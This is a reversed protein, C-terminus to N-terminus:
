ETADDMDSALVPLTTCTCNPHVPPADDGSSFVEDLGIPGDDENGQCEECSDPSALWEKGGMGAQSYEDLSAQSMARNTETNAIMDAYQPDDLLGALDDAVVDVPDGNAIGDALAQALADLRNDAISSISVGADDLMGALGRGGDDGLLEAETRWNGVDWTVDIGMLDQASAAGTVYGESWTDELVSTAATLADQSVVAQLAAKAHAVESPDPKPAAEKQLTFSYAEVAESLKPILKAFAKRIEAARKKALADRAKDWAAMKQRSRAKPVASVAKQAAATAVKIEGLDLQEGIRNLEGAVAMLPSGFEFPRWKGDRVRARAFAVFKKAEDAATPKGNSSPGSDAPQSGSAPQPGTAPTDGSAPAAGPAPPPPADPGGPQSLLGRIPFVTRGAIIFPEDAEPFSFLSLGAEARRENLTRVGDHQELGRTEAVLKEDEDEELFFKFTLYDPMRVYRIALDNLWNEMWDFMPRLARRAGTTEVNDTFGKGGLGGGSPMFGIEIPQISYCLCALKIIFEDYTAHYKDAFQVTEHPEFGEPLVRIRKRGETDGALLENLVIEYQRIQEPKMEKSTKMWGEPMVGSTYETRIWEQRKLWLDLIVLAQETQSYGYPSQTRRLKPLYVLDTSAYSGDEGGMDTFEGRPFGFVFQQYAPSPPQPRNGNTNLLPKITTSDLIVFSHVDGDNMRWPYISLADTVFHEELALALWDAFPFDNIRDPRRFFEKVRAIDEGSDKALERQILNRNTNGSAVIASEVADERPVIDWDVSALEAKRLEICRRFIEVDAATRLLQWPVHPAGAGPLNWSVPYESRRPYPQGDDRRPSIPAPLVPMGPGFAWISSFDDGRPLAASTDPNTNGQPGMGRVQTETYVQTGPPMALGAKVMREATEWDVTTRAM